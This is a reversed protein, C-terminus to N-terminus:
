NSHPCTLLFFNEPLPPTLKGREPNSKLPLMNAPINKYSQMLKSVQLIATITFKQMMQRRM